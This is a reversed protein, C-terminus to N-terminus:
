NVSVQVKDALGYPHHIWLQAGSV